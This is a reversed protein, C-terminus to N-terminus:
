AEEIRSKKAQPGDIEENSGNAAKGDESSPNNTDASTSAGGEDAGDERRRKTSKNNGDDAMTDNASTGAEMASRMNLGAQVAAGLMNLALKRRKLGALQGLAEKLLGRSFCDKNHKENLFCLLPTPYPRLLCM